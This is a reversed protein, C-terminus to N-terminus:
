ITGSGLGGSDARDTKEFYLSEIPTMLILKRPILQVLKCPLELDLANPYIKVLAVIITGTYEPDIIGINNALM